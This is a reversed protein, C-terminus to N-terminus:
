QRVEPVCVLVGPSRFAALRGVYKPLAAMCAAESQYTDAPAILTNGQKVPDSPTPWMVAVAWLGASVVPVAMM